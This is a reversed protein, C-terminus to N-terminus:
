VPIPLRGILKDLTIPLNRVRVGTANYVANAVVAGVGTIGIEGVGHAGLPSYPDPIGTWFVDIEPVDLHSPIHYEALSPNMIRGSREDFLAEETLAMGLGMIIGGRLQSSATQPNIIRGVDFCSVFRSVRTEGTFANVRVECFHAGYSHMAWKQYETPDAANAECALEDRGARALISAYTEHRATDGIARLGGDASEVADTALGALPSDNGALRLLETVLVEHAAIVAAAISATQSSGGAMTGPPLDTDGYEFRVKDMPLALRDAAIQVQATATGMGMEHSAMQITARGDATLRIRAAGGPLRYYPHTASACGMGILWEGDRRQGPNPNRGSWGFREAGLEYAKLLNRSSFARGSTQEKDPEIRLRLDIPDMHLAEALEDVASETAFTGVSEGPARMYTNALTDLDVVKQGIKFTDAAYLQRGVLSFQEPWDNHPTGAAIGEHIFTDLAGDGRAGLAVRQETLTRGGVLRYVAERSLAIRVPRGCLKSAAAALIHHDWLSKGGFGGGVFPSSVRVKEPPIGFVQALTWQTHNVMQTTDRVVLCGDKWRVTAAHLEIASHALRQSRYVHDVSAHAASLAAEADGITVTSPEGIITEPVRANPKGDNFSLRATEEVYTVKILTAAYTAQEQTEALVIAIAQGNWHIADDQMVPLTNPGAALPQTLYLPTPAMRPANRFTMVLVVGPAAEAKTVDLTDIRGRAITSHAIAAYVMGEVEIEAVFPAAGAVKLPGDIRVVQTGVAGRKSILPDFTEGPKWNKRTFTQAKDM